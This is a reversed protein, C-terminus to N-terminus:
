ADERAGRKKVLTLYKTRSADISQRITTAPASM